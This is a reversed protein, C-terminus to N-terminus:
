ALALALVPSSSRPSVASPPLLVSLKMVQGPESVVVVRALSTSPRLLSLLLPMLSSSPPLASISGLDQAV